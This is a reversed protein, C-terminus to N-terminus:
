VMAIRQLYKVFLTPIASLMPFSYRLDINVPIPGVSPAIAAKEMKLIFGTM